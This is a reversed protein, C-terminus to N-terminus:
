PLRIVPRLIRTVFHGLPTLQGNFVLPLMLEGVLRTGRSRVWRALVLYCGMKSRREMPVRRILALYERLLRWQKFVLVPRKRNFWARLDAKNKHAETSMATHIRRRFLCEPVMRCKGLLTLHAILVRDSALYPALLETTAMVDRRVLGFVPNTFDDKWPALWAALRHEPKASDCALYELFCWSEQNESDVMVSRPFVLVCEEDEDLVKVLKELYEPELMDDHGHWKFYQGRSENFVHSFNASAGLNESHRIYRIRDDEAAHSRCIEETDDTSANDCIILEFDAFTQARISKIADGVFDAGNFVPLGISVKPKMRKGSGHPTM